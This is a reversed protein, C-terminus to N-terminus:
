ILDAITLQHSDTLVQNAVLVFGRGEAHPQATLTADKEVTLGIRYATHTYGSYADLYMRALYLCADVAAAREPATSLVRASHAEAAAALLQRAKEIM